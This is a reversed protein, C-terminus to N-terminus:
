ILQFRKHSVTPPKGLAPLNGLWPVSAQETGQEPGLVVTSDRANHTNAGFNTVFGLHQSLM